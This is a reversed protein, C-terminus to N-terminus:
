RQVTFRIVPKNLPSVPLERGNEQRLFRSVLQWGHQPYVNCQHPDSDPHPDLDPNINSTSASGTRAELYLRSDKFFHEFLSM